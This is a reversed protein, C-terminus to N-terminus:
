VGSNQNALVIYCDCFIGIYSGVLWAIIQQDVDYALLCEVIFSYFLIYFGGLFNKEITYTHIIIIHCYMLKKIYHYHALIRFLDKFYQM